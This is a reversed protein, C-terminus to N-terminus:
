DNEALMLQRSKKYYNVETLMQNETFFETLKDYREFLDFGICYQLKALCEPCLWLPKSDAEEMNNSGNVLCKYIRCHKLGFMHCLEHTTTKIIRNFCIDFNTSDLQDEFYRRYSSVGVRKKLSAQGFVFNWDDAPYLDKNTIAIFSLTSDPINELLVRKLIYQTHLQEGYYRERRSDNPVVNDSVAGFLEVDLVFFTSAYNATQKLLSMELDNFVGLPLIVIKKMSDNPCMRVGTIYNGFAQGKEDHDYLWDAPMPEGLRKHLPALKSYNSLQPRVKKQTKVKDDAPHNCALLLLFAFLLSFKMIKQLLFLTKIAYEV